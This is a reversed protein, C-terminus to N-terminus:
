NPGWLLLCPLKETRAIEAAGAAAATARRTEEREVPGAKWSGTRATVVTQDAQAEATGTRACHRGRGPGGAASATQREGLRLSARVASERRCGRGDCECM